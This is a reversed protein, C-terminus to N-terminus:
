FSFLLFRLGGNAMFKAGLQCGDAQGSPIGKPLAQNPRM